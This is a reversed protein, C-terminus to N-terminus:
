LFLFPYSPISSLHALISLSLTKPSGWINFNTDQPEGWFKFMKLMKLM